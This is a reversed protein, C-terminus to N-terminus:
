QDFCTQTNFYIYFVFIGGSAKQQFGCTHFIAAPTKELQQSYGQICNETPNSLRIIDTKEREIIVAM